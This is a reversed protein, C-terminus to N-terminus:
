RQCRLVFVSDPGMGSRRSESNLGTPYDNDGPTADGNRAQRFARHVRESARLALKSLGRWGAGQDYDNEALTSGVCAIRVQRDECKQQCISKERCPKVEM